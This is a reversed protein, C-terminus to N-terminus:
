ILALCPLHHTAKSIKLTLTSSTQQLPKFCHHSNCCEDGQLQKHASRQNYSINIESESQIFSLDAHENSIVGESDTTPVVIQDYEVKGGRSGSGSEDLETADRVPLM